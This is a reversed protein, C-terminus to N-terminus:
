NRICRVNLAHTQDLMSSKHIWSRDYVVFHSWSYRNMTITIRSASWWGAGQGEGDWSGDYGRASGPLATFGSENSAEISEEVWNFTGAEKIKGAVTGQFGEMSAEETTMGLAKKLVKWDHRGTPCLKETNVAYWNYYAGYINKFLSENNEYWCYGPTELSRWELNDAVLPISTGDNLRNTKLNEAMWEQTGIQITKYINGDIDSIDHYTLGPNFFTRATAPKTSFTVQNGYYTGSTSTLYSRVYYLTNPNLGNINLSHVREPPDSSAISKNARTPGSGTSWCFGFELLSDPGISLIEGKCVASTRAISAIEETKLIPETKDKKCSQYTLSFLFLCFCARRILNKMAYFKFLRLIEHTLFISKMKSKKNLLLDEM